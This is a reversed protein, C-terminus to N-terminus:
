GDPSRVAGKAFAVVGGVLRGEWLCDKCSGM